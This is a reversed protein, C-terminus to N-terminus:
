REGDKEQDGPALRAFCSGTRGDKAQPAAITFVAAFGRGGLAALGQVPNADRL